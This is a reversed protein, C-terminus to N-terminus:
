RPPHSSEWLSTVSIFFWTGLGEFMGAFAINRKSAPVVAQDIPVMFRWLRYPRDIPKAPENSVHPPVPQETLKPFASLVEKDAKKALEAEDLSITEPPGPLGLQVALNEPEFKIAPAYRWGTCNVLMDASIAEGTSLHITHRSLHHVDGDHVRIRGSRVLEFFDQDYNLISLGCAQWFLHVRPKLKATDPHKDYANADVTDSVILGFFGDTIARGFATRRFFWRMSSYGDEDGWMAPSLWTILRTYIFREVWIKFPSVFISSFWHAGFGTSRIILHVEPAKEAVACRYAADWASKGGGYIAVSKQSSPPYGGEDFDRSHTVPGEFEELGAYKPIFPQSTQGTAVILKDAHIASTEGDKSKVTLLWGQQDDQKASKVHTNLRIHKRLNFADVFDNLYQNITSGPVHKNPDLGYKQLDLPFDAYQITGPLNNSMFTEYLREKSWTGGISPNADVVLLNTEPHIELYTRASHLGWPGAGIIILHYSEITSQM